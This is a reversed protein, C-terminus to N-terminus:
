SEEDALHAEEQEMERMRRRKRWLARGAGALFLLTMVSFLTTANAVAAFWGYRSQLSGALEVEFEALRVGVTREFALDFRGIRATSDVLATWGGRERLREDIEQLAKLSLRYAMEARRGGSPFRGVLESLRPLGGVSAVQFLAITDGLSWEGSQMQAVGEVFWTPPRVGSLAQGLYVHSIEHRLVFDLSKSGATIGDVDLAIPGDPWNAYGIGWDPLLGRSWRQFTRGSLLYVAVPRPRQLGVGAAVEPAASAWLRAVEVAAGELGREALLLAPPDEVVRRVPFPDDDRDPALTTQASVSAVWTTTALLALLVTTRAAVLAATVASGGSRLLPIPLLTRM